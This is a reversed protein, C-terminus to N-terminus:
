FAQGISFHVRWHRVEPAGNVLLGDIRNLQYGFDLRIPGVPTQYRLGTGAAYRIDGLHVDRLDKWVNGGDLFLVGGLKGRLAARLETSFAFLSNGGIPLGSGGLPSVEYRGWGRVSSAGGLFYKKSFPVLKPDYAAPRINGVQIRNAAVLRKGIPLYHRADASAAFYNFTGPLIGGAKEIHGAVQYGRRANLANDATTRQWDAGIASLTGEQTGTTPDLGLAILDAYSAGLNEPSLLISSTNREHQLSISWRTRSSRQRTLAVKGGTVISKYAPTYTYWRQAEIGLSL